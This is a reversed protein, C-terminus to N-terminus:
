EPMEGLTNLLGLLYLLREMSVGGLRKRLRSLVNTAHSMSISTHDKFQKMTQGSAKYKLIAIETPTLTALIPMIFKHALDEHNFVREHFLRTIAVLTELTNAKLQNFEDDEKYSIVSAGAGGREEYSMPISLANKIGYQERALTIVALEEQTVLGKLEHERWDMPKMYGETIRRVTFDYKQLQEKAYQDIFGQPYSETSLFVTAMDTMVEIQIKPVFTYTAGDYGLQRLFKEYVRFNDDLSVPKSFHLESIFRPVFEHALIM